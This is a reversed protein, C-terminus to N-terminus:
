NGLGSSLGILPCEVARHDKGDLTCVHRYICSEGAQPKCASRTNWWLCVPKGDRDRYATKPDMSKNSIFLPSSDLRTTDTCEDTRHSSRGCCLCFSWGPSKAPLKKISTTTSSTFSTFRPMAKQAPIATITSVAGLAATRAAAQADSSVESILWDSQVRNFIPAQFTAPDLPETTSRKRVKIDYLLWLQWNESLASPAKKISLMHQVWKEHWRPLFKKILLLYRQYAQKWETYNLRDEGDTNFPNSSARLTLSDQDLNIVEDNDGAHDSRAIAKDTLYTFPLHQALGHKAVHHMIHWPIDYTLTTNGVM